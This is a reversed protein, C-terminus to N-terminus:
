EAVVVGQATAENFEGFFPYRGPELPGIFISAKSGGPIVKERNLEHSEFEEATADKNEVVLRVKTGAPVRVEAPDFRHDKIVLNVVPTAALVTAPLVLLLPLLRFM